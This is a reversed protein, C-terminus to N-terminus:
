YFSAEKTVRIKKEKKNKGLICEPFQVMFARPEHTYQISGRCATWTSGKFWNKALNTM